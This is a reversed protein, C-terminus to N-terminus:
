QRGCGRGGHLIGGPSGCEECIPTRGCAYNAVDHRISLSLNVGHVVMFDKHSNLYRLFQLAAMVSFEDGRGEDDLIRLDMINITPCIGVLPADLRGQSDEEPRWDAGVIGAVHTGHDHSPPQYNGDHPVSIFPLLLAWDIERGDLLRERIEKRKTPHTKLLRKLRPPLSAVDDDSTSLIRRIITFDYTSTIRSTSSWDGSANAKVGARSLPRRRFAPHKADIGSDAVAWTISSCDIKFLSVAADAKVAPVSRHLSAMALRNRSILYVLPSEPTKMDAGSMLESLSAFLREFFDQRAALARPIPWIDLEQKDSETGGDPTDQSMAIVGLVLMLWYVEATMEKPHGAKSEAFAKALWKRGAATKLKKIATMAKRAVTQNSRLSVFRSHWWSSLPLVVRVMEAFSLRVAVTTQNIAIEHTNEASLEPQKPAVDDKLRVSLERALTGPSLSISSREQYPTLLLDVRADPNAAYEMWVDPLVPSDQTFRSDLGQEYLISRM